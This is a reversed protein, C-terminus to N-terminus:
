LRDAVLARIRRHFRDRGFRDRPLSPERGTEIARSVTAAADPVSSFLHEEAGDLVDRQGGSDPAFALTGAAVYEAVTMGFHEDPKTSLGYRHTTLLSELRNRSVDTELSVYERADAAAAVRDVYSRYAPAATGVVHLHVDHGRERVADVIRVADLTRKDPAIRGAAVVGHEREAWDLGGGIPDVPPHLVTPERGYREAVAEATWSSNTVLTADAPLRRDGLGALRTWLPDLRGADDDDVARGNFQPYHVYQVSPRSFDFENATSVLLDVGQAHRRVFCDLLVSRPALLPGAHDAVLELAPGLFESGPPTRVPVAAATDFMGNLTSLPPHSLTFLTVDHVDQLAECVHLCVADAGSRLDLTNHVVAVRAM